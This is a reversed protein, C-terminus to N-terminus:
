NGSTMYAAIRQASALSLTIGLRYHGTNLFLGQVEPVPGIYPAAQAPQPRLGAWQNEIELKRSEPWLRAAAELLFVRAAATVTKDFGADELTSGVLIRGDRRPILYAHQDMRIHDLQEPHGRLLLMQGKVPRVSAMASLTTSWAGAALVAHRCAILGQGTQVGMLRGRAVQWGRAPTQERVPVGLQALRQHLAQMLRPNRVQAVGPFWRAEGAERVFRLGCAWYEPDIGTEDHLARCTAPYLRLSEDLLERIDPAPDDPPLPTLMGGGAWSAEQGVRGRELVCVKLGREALALATSAGVIGAGVVVVDFSGAANNM